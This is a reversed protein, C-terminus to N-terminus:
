NGLLQSLLSVKQGSILVEASAGEFRDRERVWTDILEQSLPVAIFLLEREANRGALRVIRVDFKEPEVFLDSHASIVDGVKVDKALADPLNFELNAQQGLIHIVASHTVKSPVSVFNLFLVAAATFLVVALLGPKYWSPLPANVISLARWSLFRGTEPPFDELVNEGSVDALGNDQIENNETHESM